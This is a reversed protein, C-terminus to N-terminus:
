VMERLFRYIEVMALTDLECYNLLDNYIKDKDEQKMETTVMDGWTNSALMGDGINLDGYSLRPVVVPLVKKLSASGQFDKHVYFGKKFVEMLDYMRNNIDQYFLQYETEREGMEDNCGQEFSMNWAVITGKKGIINVLSESLGKTPDTLDKALYDYHKIDGDKKEQV